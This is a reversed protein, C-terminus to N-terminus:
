GSCAHRSRELADRRTAAAATVHRPQDRDAPSQLQRELPQIDADLSSSGRRDAAAFDRTMGEKTNVSRRTTAPMNMSNLSQPQCLLPWWPIVSRSTPAHQEQADRRDNPPRPQGLQFRGLGCQRQSCGDPLRCGRITVGGLEMAPQGRPGDGNQACGAAWGRTKDTRCRGSRDTHDNRTRRQDNWPAATLPTPASPSVAGANAGCRWTRWCNDFSRPSDNLIENIM